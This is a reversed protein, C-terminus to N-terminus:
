NLELQVLDPRLAVRLVECVHSNRAFLPGEIALVFTRKPINLAKSEKNKAPRSLINLSGKQPLMAYKNSKIDVMRKGASISQGLEPFMQVPIYSQCIGLIEKEMNLPWEALWYGPHPKDAPFKFMKDLIPDPEMLKIPKLGVGEYTDFNLFSFTLANFHEIVLREPELAVYTGKGKEINLIGDSVLDSIAQRVTPRSLDHEKCLDLESPIRDGPKYVGDQIDEVLVERLQAYLPISSHKDLRM